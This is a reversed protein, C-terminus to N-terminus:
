IQMSATVNNSYETRTITALICQWTAFVIIRRQLLWVVELSFYLASTAALSDFSRGKSVNHTSLSYELRTCTCWVFCPIKADMWDIQPSIALLIWGICDSFPWWLPFLSLWEFNFPKLNLFQSISNVPFFSPCVGNEVGWKWMFCPALMCSHQHDLLFYTFCVGEERKNVHVMWIKTRDFRSRIM